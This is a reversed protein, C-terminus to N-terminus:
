RSAPAPAASPAPDSAQLVPAAKLPSPAKPPAQECGRAFFRYCDASWYLANVIALPIWVWGSRFVGLLEVTCLFVLLKEALSVWRAHYRRDWYSFPSIFRYNSLPMFHRHADDHHVPLDGLSHLAASLCLLAIATSGTGYAIAAGGLALPISHFLHTLNQWFPQWYTQSWIQGESQRQIGKAWVYLVFMPLDPLIAGAFIAGGTALAVSEIPEISEAGVAFPVLLALNVIAHSPTNM